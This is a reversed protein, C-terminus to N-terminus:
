TTERLEALEQEAAQYTQTWSFTAMESLYRELKAIRQATTPQAPRHTSRYDASNVNAQYTTM